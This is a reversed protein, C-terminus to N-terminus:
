EGREIRKLKFVKRNQLQEFIRLLNKIPLKKQFDDLIVGKNRIEKKIKLRFKAEEQIYKFYPIQMM